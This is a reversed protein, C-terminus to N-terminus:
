LIRGPQLQGTGGYAEKWEIKHGLPTLQKNVYPIFYDHIASIFVFIPPHGSAITIKWTKATCSTVALSIMAAAMLVVLTTKICRQMIM